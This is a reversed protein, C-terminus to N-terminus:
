KLGGIKHCNIASFSWISRYSTGGRVVLTKIANAVQHYDSYEVYVLENPLKTQDIMVLKNNKWEITKLSM